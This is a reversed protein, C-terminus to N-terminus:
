KETKSEYCDIKDFKKYKFILIALSATAGVMILVAFMGGFNAIIKVGNIGVLSIMIYAVAMVVLGWLIKLYKPAEPNDPSIGHTSVGAMATTNSNAATVFSLFILILFLPIIVKPIPLHNMVEYPISEVGLESYAKVLDVKGTMQFNLSTGGVITMWLAGTIACIGAYLGLTQRVTRGYAIRGMFAGTTPAWAMWSCWYFTTWWQPWQSDASAGTLLAKEFFGSLFGGFAETGLNFMYTTPGFILLFLLFLLYGWVNINAAVKMGRHLGSIATFVFAGTILAAVILWLFPGSPIGWLDSVGGSINLIGQGLSGAMGAGICFLTIADITKMTGPRDAISGLVPAMQSTISFPRKGNYYMFGFVVAPVTYIAYPIFTWHLYMTEMAYKAAQTTLPEIGTLETPPAMLHAIPEAPGWFLIGSAITTTLAISFWSFNSLEPKADKGGLRVDGFKSAAAFIAILLTLVAVISFVWGVNSIIWNNISNILDLFVDKSISSIVIILVLIIFPPFFTAKRLKLTQNKTETTM